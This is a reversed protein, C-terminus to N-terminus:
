QLRFMVPVTYKVRVPKGRQKGPSWKPMMKIVRLAEKDLYPDVGRMVVPEVISGDTNVVFQVIVRGQVGNEKAIKETECFLKKGIGKGRFDDEGYLADMFAMKIETMGSTCFRTNSVGIIKGNEEACLMIKNKSKVHKKFDRKKNVCDLKKYMDPEMEAHLNHLKKFFEEAQEYDEFTM